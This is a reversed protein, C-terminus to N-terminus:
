LNAPVAAGDMVHLGEHGFVRHYPDIVGYAASAGICAGGLIHATMPVDLIVENLSSRPFGEMHDAAARAAENAVPLYRPSPKGTDHSSTLRTGLPGKKRFVRLSNDVSQMVLLIVSRESWRRVSLSRLFQLPHRIIATGFRVWRPVGGGGDVLVTSLLGM